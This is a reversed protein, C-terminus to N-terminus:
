PDRYRPLAEALQGLAWHHRRDVGCVLLAPLRRWGTSVAAGLCAVGAEQLLWQALHRDDKAIKSVNPFAYFAGRSRARSGPLRNLGAVIADRRERFIANMRQVPADDGTLAAVGAKQVFTAVCSFTNNNFLVVTEAIKRARPLLGAALGDDRLGEFFRRDRDHSRADRSRPSPSSTPGTINRSYIEDAIVLFNHRHALEAITELDDRTLV